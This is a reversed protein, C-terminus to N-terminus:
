RRHAVVLRRKSTTFSAPDAPSSGRTIGSRFVLYQWSGATSTRLTLKSVSTARPLLRNTTVLEAEADEAVEADEPALEADEM